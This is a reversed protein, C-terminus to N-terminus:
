GEDTASPSAALKFHVAGVRKDGSAFAELYGLIGKLASM